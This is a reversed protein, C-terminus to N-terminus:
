EAAEPLPTTTSLKALERPEVSAPELVDLDKKPPDIELEKFRRASTMVQSELSGVMKNYAGSALELNRGVKAVHDGMTALRDYLEKGLAAIERVNQAAKEQQWVMAVTRAIAILNTPSALLVKKQFATEFLEQDVELAAALFNEGPVFMIVFDLTDDFQASYSKRSLTDVHTRLARAHAQMYALREDDDDAGVADQYANLSCKADIVLVRDGPLNIVVDPRLPGDEGDVHVEEQFDAHKSLGAMELVNRLQHEGWRGRAKPANRLAGVLKRAEDRVGEQGERVLAIANTIEGYAKGRKEEIERLREQYKTLTDRMPAIMKDLEARNQGLGENAKERHRVLTEEARKLFAETTEGLAKDALEKFGKKLDGERADFAKQQETLGRKLDVLELRHVDLEDIKTRLGARESKLDEIERVREDRASEALAQGREADAVAATLRARDAVAEDRTADHASRESALEEASRAVDARLGAAARAWILWGIALGVLLAAFSAILTETTM